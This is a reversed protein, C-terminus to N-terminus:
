PCIDPAFASQLFVSDVLNFLAGDYGALEAQTNVFNHLPDIYLDTDLQTGFYIEVAEAWYEYFNTSAYVQGGNEQWLGNNIADDFTSELDADFDADVFSLAMLHISHGMEHIFISQAGTGLPDGLLCLLGAEPTSLTPRSIKAGLGGVLENRKDNPISAQEPLEYPSGGAPFIGIAMGNDIAEELLDNRSAFFDNALNCARILAADDVSNNSIIPMGFLSIYKKYYVNLGLKSPPSSIANCDNAAADFTFSRTLQYTSGDASTRTLENTHRSRSRDGDDCAALTTLLLAYFLSALLKKNIM